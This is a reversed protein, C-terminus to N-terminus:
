RIFRELGVEGDKGCRFRAVMLSKEDDIRNV